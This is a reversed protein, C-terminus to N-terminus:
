GLSTRYTNIVRYRFLFFWTTMQVYEGFANLNQHRHDPFRESSIGCASPARQRAPGDAAVGSVSIYIYIYIYTNHTYIHICIYTYIYIYIVIM